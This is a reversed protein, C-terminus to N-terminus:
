KNKCEFIFNRKFNLIKGIKNAYENQLAFVLPKIVFYDLLAM